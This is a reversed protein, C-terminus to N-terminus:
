TSGALALCRVVGYYVWVVPMGIPSMNPLVADLPVTLWQDTGGDWHARSFFIEWHGDRQRIENDFLPRGDAISCCLGGHPSMQETIWKEHGHMIAADDSDAPPPAAHAAVALILALFLVAVFGTAVALVPRRCSRGVYNSEHWWEEPRPGGNASLNPELHIASM